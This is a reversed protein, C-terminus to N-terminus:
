DRAELIKEFRNLDESTTIKFNSEEGDIMAVKMKALVAVETSGNIKLIEKELLRENACLYKGYVYAEPAQGAFLQNRNLLSDVSMGDKSLYVTDKMPLVPMVGDAKRCANVCNCILQKTVCPRAADHILVVDKEVAIGKLVELGHYISLQRNEGPLAFGKFKEDLGCLNEKIFNHWERAAVIVYAEIQGSTTITEVSYRIIPKGKVEYYQKPIDIGKLRSGTGGSLIIAYNM